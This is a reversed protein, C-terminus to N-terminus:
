NGLSLRLFMGECVNIKFYQSKAYIKEIKSRSSVQYFNGRLWFFVCPRLCNKWCLNCLM